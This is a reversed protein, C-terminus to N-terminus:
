GRCDVDRGQRGRAAFAFFEMKTARGAGLGALRQAFFLVVRVDEITLVVLRCRTVTHDAMKTHWTALAFFSGHFIFYALQTHLRLHTRSIIPKLHEIHISSQSTFFSNIKHKNYTKSFLIIKFTNMFTSEEVGIM